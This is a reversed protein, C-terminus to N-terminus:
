ITRRNILSYKIAIGEFKKITDDLFIYREIERETHLNKTLIEKREEELVSILTM